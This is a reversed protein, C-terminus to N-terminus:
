VKFNGKCDAKCQPSASAIEVTIASPHAGGEAVFLADVVATRSSIVGRGVGRGTEFLLEVSGM